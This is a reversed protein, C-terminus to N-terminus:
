ILAELETAFSTDSYVPKRTPVINSSMIHASSIGCYIRSQAKCPLGSVKVQDLSAGAVSALPVFIFDM